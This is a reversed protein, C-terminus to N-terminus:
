ASERPFNFALWDEVAQRTSYGAQKLIRVIDAASVVLVPHRDEKIERYAQRHVYSTTVLVGFQRYRLRSILRSTAKVGVANDTAYCKAELAFEVKVSDGESGIRYEGVADRGGDAWPRTLEYSVFNGDMLMTLEAACKEFGYPDERFYEYIARVIQVGERDSPLQEEKSRYEITRSTRLPAYTGGEVWERWAAPCNASLPDGSVVNDIWARSVVPVDLITFIARYNQFREGEKLKWVAVLDETPGLGPAGPVALGEFVVDRGAPGKVFVFFPPVTQREGLHTASFADRLIVNGKRHTEHLLHGPRKNDGFYTFQGTELDLFDPWDPDALSSYLVVLKCSLDSSSGAYRFGGQVGCRFLKNLPDDGAHGASGGEYVADVVLDAKELSQFDVTKAMEEGM